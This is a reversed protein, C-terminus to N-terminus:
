AAPTYDLYGVTIGLYSGAKAFINLYNGAFLAADTGDLATQPLKYLSQFGDFYAIKGNASFIPAGAGALSSIYTRVTADSMDLNIDNTAKTLSGYVDGTDTLPDAPIIASIFNVLGNPNVFTKPTGFQTSYGRILADLSKIGTVISTANNIAFWPESGSVYNELVTAEDINLSSYTAHDDNLEADTLMILPGGSRKFESTVINTTVNDWFYFSTSYSDYGRTNSITCSDHPNTIRFITLWSKAIINDIELTNSSWSDLMILGGIRSVNEEGASRTANGVMNVNKITAITNVAEVNSVSKVVSYDFLASNPIVISGETPKVGNDRTILSIASADITFYNGIFTFSQNSDIRREYIDIVDRLSGNNESIYAYDLDTNLVDEDGVKHFYSAPLDANTLNIDRHLILGNIQESSVNNAAKYDTWAVGYNDFKSLDAATYANWGDVVKVVLEVKADAVSEDVNEKPTLTIKFTQGIATDSFDLSYKSTDISVLTALEEETLVAFEEGVLKTIAINSEYDTSIYSQNDPSLLTVKPMIVFANDDGVYYGSARNIFETEKNTQTSINGTYSTLFNPSEYGMVVAEEPQQVVVSVTITTTLHKYSITIQKEGAELTSFAGITFDPYSVEKTEGTIMKVVIKMSSFDPTQGQSFETQYSGEKVSISLPIEPGCGAFAFSFSLLLALAM